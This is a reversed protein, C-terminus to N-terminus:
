TLGQSVSMCHQGTLTKMEVHMCIVRRQLWERRKTDSSWPWVLGSLILVLKVRGKFCVQANLLALITLTITLHFYGVSSGQHFLQIYQHMGYFTHCGQVRNSLDDVVLHSHVCPSNHYGVHPLSMTGSYKCDTHWPLRRWKKSLPNYLILIFNKSSLVNSLV